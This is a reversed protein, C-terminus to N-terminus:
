CNCYKYPQSSHGSYKLWM